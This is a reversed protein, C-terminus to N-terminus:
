APVNTADRGTKTQPISRARAPHAERKRRRRTNGKCGTGAAPPQPGSRSGDRRALDASLVAVPAKTVPYQERPHPSTRPSSSDGKQVSAQIATINVAPGPAGLGQVPTDKGVRMTNVEAGDGSDVSSPALVASLCGGEQTESSPGGARGEPNFLSGCDGPLHPQPYVASAPRAALQQTM